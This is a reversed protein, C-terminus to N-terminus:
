ETKQLVNRPIIVSNGQSPASTRKQYLMLLDPIKATLDHGDYRWQITQEKVGLGM